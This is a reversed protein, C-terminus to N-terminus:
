WKNIGECFVLFHHIEFGLPKTIKNEGGKRENDKNMLVLIGQHYYQLM